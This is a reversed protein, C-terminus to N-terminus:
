EEILDKVQTYAKGYPIIKPIDKQLKDSDMKSVDEFADIFKTVTGLAAVPNKAMYKVQEPDFVFLLNGLANDLSLAKRRKDEDDDDAYMAIWITAVLAAGKLNSVMEKSNWFEKTLAQKRLESISSDLLIRWTGRVKENNANIYESGFRVKWADPMWVKFQSAIKGLEGRMFNRRDKESYKGQIDTVKNKYQSFKRKIAKKDGKITIEGDKNVEIDNWETDTLQSLFMTGQIQREGYSQAAYALDQFAKGVKFTPLSSEDLKVVDFEKLIAQGKKSFFRKNAVAGTRLGGWGLQAADARWNNYNGIFVNMVSAPINFGMVIQSTLARLLRLSTDIIPDTEKPKKYLQEEKWDKLWAKVNPKALQEGYGREALYEISDVIPVLKSLHKVHTYDDIYQVAANYFDKSYGKDKNRVKSFKSVLQGNGLSYNSSVANKKAKYAISLLKPVSAAKNVLGKKSYDIIEKEAESYPVKETKGTNPNTYTIEVDDHQGGLYHGIAEFLGEEKYVDVFGRDLKLVDNGDEAVQGEEDFAVRNKTLEKIYNLLDIQAQSLGSTDTIYKGDKDMYEFYKANDSSFAGALKGTIGLKKNKEKVVADALKKLKRKEANREQQMDMYADEFLNSLSQLEPFNETMHSLTKFWRDKWTLDKKNANEEIFKDHKRLDQKRTESLYIAIKARADNFAKGKNERTDEYVQVLEELSYGELSEANIVDEVRKAGMLYREYADRDSEEQAEIADRIGEYSSREEEDLDEEELIDNITKLDTKIEDLNRSLNERRFANFTKNAQRKVESKGYSLDKTGYGGIIQKALTKAINKDLGLKTKFWDFLYSLYAKFRSKETETKFIGEGERGIAEALLENELQKENLEPYREKIENWLETEKLQKVAAAVVKNEGMADLLVHAGEHIPTDAGAYYPNIKITDGQLQGASKLNEDYEVKVKPFSKRIVDIVKEINEKSKSSQKQFPAEPFETPAIEDDSPETKQAKVEDAIEDKVDAAPQEMAAIEDDTLGGNQIKQYIEIARQKAMEKFGKQAYEAVIEAADNAVKDTDINLEGTQGTIEAMRQSFFEFSEGGGKTLGLPIEKAPVGTRDILEQHDFKVGNAINLVVAHELSIPLEDLARKEYAKQQKESEIADKSRVIPEKYVKKGESNLLSIKGNNLLQIGYGISEVDRKIVNYLNVGQESKKDAKSLDNYNGIRYKISKIVDPTVQQIPIKVVGTAKTILKGSDEIAKAIDTEKGSGISTKIAGISPKLKPNDERALQEEARRQGSETNSLKPENKFQKQNFKKEYQQDFYREYFGNDLLDKDYDFNEVLDQIQSNIFEKKDPIAASLEQEYKADIESDIAKLDAEEYKQVPLGLEKKLENMEDVLGKYFDNIAKVDSDLESLGEKKYKESSSLILKAEEPSFSDALKSLCDKLKSM